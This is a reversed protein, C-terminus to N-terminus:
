TSQHIATDIFQLKADMDVVLQVDVLNYEIFKEIDEKFLDDLNGSYEVKGRGLEKMAISDLRYNDLESYTFNKYLALYDLYSVGAM